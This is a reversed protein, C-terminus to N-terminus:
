PEAEEADRKIRHAELAKKTRFRSDCDPCQFPFDSVPQLGESYDSM